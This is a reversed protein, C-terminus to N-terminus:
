PSGFTREWRQRPDAFRVAAPDFRDPDRSAAPADAGPVQGAGGGTAALLRAYAEIGGCDEPPCAGAGATCLPYRRGPEPRAYGELLVEHQWDDGLDYTYLAPPQDPRFWPAVGERWGARIERAGHYESADPIGFYARQGTEPHDTTFLHLHRDEWGMADQIAVHLDWFSYTAPVALRRWIPRPALVLDVRFVLLRRPSAGPFLIINDPRTADV